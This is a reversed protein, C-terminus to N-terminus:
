KMYMEPVYVRGWKKKASSHVIIFVIEYVVQIIVVTGIVIVLPLMYIFSFNGFGYEFIWRVVAAGCILETARMLVFIINKALLSGGNKGCSVYYVAEYIQDFEIRENAPRQKIGRANERLYPILDLRNAKIWAIPGKLKYIEAIKQFLDAILGFIVALSTCLSFLSRLVSESIDADIVGHRFLCCMFLVILSVSAVAPGVIGGFVKCMKMLTPKAQPSSEWAKYPSQPAAAPAAWQPATGTPAQWTPAMGQPAQGQPASWPPAQWASATGQSPQGGQPATGPQQPFPGYVPRQLGQVGDTQAPNPEGNQEAGGNVPMTSPASEARSAAGAVNNEAGTLAVSAGCATCLAADDALQAGCNPCVKM